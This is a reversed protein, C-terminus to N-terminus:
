PVDKQLSAPPVPVHTALFALQDGVVFDFLPEVYPDFHGGEYVRVTSRPIRSAAKEAVARPTIADDTVLQVLAPCRVGAAWRQPSYAGIRLAIRAAVSTPYDELQLGSEQILRIMGPYADASTMMATRGPLDVSAVQVPARGFWAGVQDRVAPGALRLVARLGTSRVAAPGSVHPVQAIVAALPEGQGAVAIVHGGGFSTGWAVVRAPDVGDLTRTHAIAARWDQHQMAVSLLQRPEGESDGFGRYDFAVVVYGAAAFREAYAYLRLARVSGFGHAMVIAPRDEQGADPRYVRAACRTGDSAFWEESHTFGPTPATAM